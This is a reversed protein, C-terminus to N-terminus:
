NDEQVDIIRCRKFNFDAAMGEVEIARVLAGSVFFANSILPDVWLEPGVLVNSTLVVDFDTSPTYIYYYIDRVGHQENVKPSKDPRYGRKINGFNLDYRTEIFTTDDNEYFPVAYLSANGLDFRKFVSAAKESLFVGYGKVMHPLHRIMMTPVEYTEADKESWGKVRVTFAERPLPEGQWNRIWYTPKITDDPMEMRLHFNAGHNLLVDCVYVEDIM